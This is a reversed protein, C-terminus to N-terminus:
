RLREEEIRGESEHPAAPRLKEDVVADQTIWLLNSDDGASGVGRLHSSQHREIRRGVEGIWVVVVLRARVLRQALNEGVDGEGASAEVGVFQQRPKHRYVGILEGM